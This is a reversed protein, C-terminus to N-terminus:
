NKVRYKSLSDVFEAYDASLMSLTANGQYRNVAEELIKAAEQDKNLGILVMVLDDVREPDDLAQQRLIPLSREYRDRAKTYDEVQVYSRALGVHYEACIPRMNSAKELLPIAKTYKGENMLASARSALAKAERETDGKCGTIVLVALLLIVSVPVLRM